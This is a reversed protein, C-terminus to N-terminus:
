YVMWNHHGGWQSKLVSGLCPMHLIYEGLFNCSSNHPRYIVKSTFSFNPDLTVGPMGETSLLLWYVQMLRLLHWFTVHRNNWTFITIDKPSLMPLGQGKGLIVFLGMWFVKWENAIQRWEFNFGFIIICTETEKM